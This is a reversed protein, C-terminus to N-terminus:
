EPTDPSLREREQTSEGSVEEEPLPPLDSVVSDETEEEETEDEAGSPIELPLKWKIWIVKWGPFTPDLEEGGYIQHETIKDMWWFSLLNFIVGLVWKIVVSPMQDPVLVAVVTKTRM